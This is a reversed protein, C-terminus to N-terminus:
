DNIIQKTKNDKTLKRKTKYEEYKPNSACILVHAGMSKSPIEVLCYKCVSM